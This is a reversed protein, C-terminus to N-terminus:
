RTLCSKIEEWTISIEPYGMAYPGIEYANYYFTIGNAELLFNESLFFASKVDDVWIEEQEKIMKNLTFSSLKELDTENFLNQLHIENGTISNLHFYQTYGFGHAASYYYGGHSVSFQHVNKFSGYYECSIDWEASADRNHKLVFEDTLKSTYEVTDIQDSQILGCIYHQLKQEIRSNVWDSEGYITPWEIYFHNCKKQYEYLSDQNSQMSDLSSCDHIDFKQIKLELSQSYGFSVTAFFGFILICFIKM